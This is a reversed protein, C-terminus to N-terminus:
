LFIKGCIFLFWPYIQYNCIKCKLEKKILKKAYDLLTIELNHNLKLTKSIFCTMKCVLKAMKCVPKAMKCVLKAMKCVLKAM